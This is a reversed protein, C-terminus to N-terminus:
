NSEIVQWNVYTFQTSTVTRRLELTTSNVLKATAQGGALPSSSDMIVISKDVDVAPSLTVNHTTWSNAIYEGRQVAKIGGFLSDLTAM